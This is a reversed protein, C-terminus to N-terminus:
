HLRKLQGVLFNFDLSLSHNTWHRVAQFTETKQNKTRWWRAKFTKATGLTACGQLQTKM